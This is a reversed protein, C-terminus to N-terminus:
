APARAAVVRRRVEAPSHRVRLDPSVEDPRVGYLRQSAWMSYLPLWGHYIVLGRKSYSSDRFEYEPHQPWPEALVNEYIPLGLYDGRPVGHQAITLANIASEAEDGSSPTAALDRARLFFATGLILVFAAIHWFQSRSFSM